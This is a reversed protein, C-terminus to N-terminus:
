QSKPLHWVWGGSGTRGPIGIQAVEINLDAKARKLTKESIGEARAADWIEKAPRDGEELMRMLFDKAEERAGKHETPQVLLDDASIDAQGMWSFVGQGTGDDVITYELTEPMPGLNTKACAFGRRAPEEPFRACIFVARATAAFDLSSTIRYVSNNESSRKNLHMVGIVACDTQEAMECLPGLVQRVSASKHTDTGAGMFALIPDLVLLMAEKSQVEGRLLDLHEALSLGNRKEGESVTVSITFIRRTDARLIDLRPRITDAIGDECSIILVNAEPFRGGGNPFVGGISLRAALDLTLFSKGVGPDGVILTLKGLALRHPWLWDISVPQIESMPRVSLAPTRSAADSDFLETELTIRVQAFHVQWDQVKHGNYRAVDKALREWDRESFLDFSRPAALYGEGGFHLVSVVGFYRGRSQTVQIRVTAVGPIEYEKISDM